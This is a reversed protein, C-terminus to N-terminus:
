HIAFLCKVPFSLTFIRNDLCASRVNKICVIVSREPDRPCMAFNANTFSVFNSLVCEEVVQIRFWDFDVVDCDSTPVLRSTEDNIATPVQKKGGVHYRVRTKVMYPLAHLAIENCKM